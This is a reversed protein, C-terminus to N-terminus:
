CWCFYTNILHEEITVQVITSYSQSFFFYTHLYSNKCTANKSGGQLCMKVKNKKIRSM